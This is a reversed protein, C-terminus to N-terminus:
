EDDAEPTYWTGQEEHRGNILTEREAGCRCRDVYRVGGHAAPNQRSNNVPGFYPLADSTWAIRHQHKSM